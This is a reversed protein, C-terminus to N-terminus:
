AFEFGACGFDIAKLLATALEEKSRYEPLDLARFCTHVMPLRPPADGDDARPAEAQAVASAFAAIAAASPLGPPLRPNTVTRAARRISFPPALAVAGEPPLGDGGTCFRWFAVRRHEPWEGLVDWLWKVVPSRASYGNGYVTHRRVDGLLDVTPNGCVALRLSQADLRLADLVPRPVLSYFGELFASLLHAPGTTLAWEARLRCYHERNGDNVPIHTGGPLLPHTTAAGDHASVHVVEFTPDGLDAHAGPTSGVHALSSAMAPDLAALDAATVPVGVLHKFAPLALRLSGLTLQGGHRSGRAGGGELLVKGVLAGLFAADLVDSASTASPDFYVEFAGEVGTPALCRLGCLAQGATSFFERTLGGSDVGGEGQFRVSLPASWAPDGVPGLVAQADAVVRGRSVQLLVPLRRPPQAPVPVAGPGAAAAAAAVGQQFTYMADSYAAVADRLRRCTDAPSGASPPGITTCMSLAAALGFQEAQSDTSTAPPPVAAAARPPPAAAQTGRAGDRAPGKDKKARKAPRAAAAAAATDADSAIRLAVTAYWHREGASNTVCNPTGSTDVEVVTGIQGPALVGSAGGHHTAHSALVVRTGVAFRPPPPATTPAVGHPTATGGPGVLARFWGRPPAGGLHAASALTSEFAVLGSALADVHANLEAMTAAASMRGAAGASAGAVGGRGVHVPVRYDRHEPGAAPRPAQAQPPAVDGPAICLDYAQQAGTRYSFRGGSDWAVTCWHPNGPLTSRRITGIGGPGGDQEAWRWDIGRCVRLGVLATSTTVPAGVDAQAAALELATAVAAGGASTAPVRGGTAAAPAHVHGFARMPPVPGSSRFPELPAIQRRSIPGGLFTSASARLRAMRDGALPLDGAAGSFLEDLPDTSTTTGDQSPREGGARPRAGQVIGGAAAATSPRTDRSAGRSHRHDGGRSRSQSRTVRARQADVPADVQLQEEATALAAASRGSPPGPPAAGLAQAIQRMGRRQLWAEYAQYAAHEASPAGPPPPPQAWPGSPGLGPPRSGTFRRTPLPAAFGGEAADADEMDEDEDSSSYLLEPESGQRGSAPVVEDGDEDSSAAPVPQTPPQRVIGAPGWQSALPHLRARLGGPPEAADVAAAVAGGATAELAAAMSGGRRAEEGVERLADAAPARRLAQRCYWWPGGAGDLRLVHLPLSSRDDRLVRGLPGGPHLPGHAADRWAHYNPSVTVIDGVQLAAEDEDEAAAAAEATGTATAPARPPTLRATATAAAAALAARSSRPRPRTTTVHALDFCGHAGVRHVSTTGNALWHVFVWGGRPTTGLIGGSAWPVVFGEGGPGGDQNGGCYDPGRIVRLGPVVDAVKVVPHVMQQSGRSRATTVAAALASAPPETLLPFSRSSLEYTHTEEHRAEDWRVTVACCIDPENGSSPGAAGAAAADAAGVAAPARTRRRASQEPRHVVEGGVEQVSADLEVVSTVTGGNHPGRAATLAEVGAAGYGPWVRLGPRALAPSVVCGAAMAASGAVLLDFKDRHGCRYANSHGHPWAVRVWQDTTSPLCFRADLLSLTLAFAASHGPPARYACRTGRLAIISGV